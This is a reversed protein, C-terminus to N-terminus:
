SILLDFQNEEELAIFCMSSPFFCISAMLLPALEAGSEQASRNVQGCRLTSMIFVPLQINGLAFVGPKLLPVGPPDSTQTRVTM